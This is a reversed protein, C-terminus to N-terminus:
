ELVVSILHSIQYSYYTKVPDFHKWFLCYKIKSVFVSICNYELVGENQAMSMDKKEGTNRNELNFWICKAYKSGSLTKKLHHFYIIKTTASGTEWRLFVVAEWLEQTSCFM